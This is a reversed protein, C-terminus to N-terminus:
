RADTADASAEIGAALDALERGLLGVLDDATVMGRLAGAEDVVPLRRVGHERMRAAATAVGEIDRVVIPDLTAIESVRTADPDRGDAVVRVAVDRDTLIGYPRGKRVVVLCGVHQDRLKKAAASVPEDLEATVVPRCYRDLSM